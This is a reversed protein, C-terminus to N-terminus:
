RINNSFPNNKNEGYFIKGQDLNDKYMCGSPFRKINNFYLTKNYICEKADSCKIFSGCCGFTFEASDKYCKKYVDNVHSLVDDIIEEDLIIKLWGAGNDTKNTDLRLGFLTYYKKAIEIRRESKLSPLKIVAIDCFYLTKFGKNIKIEFDGKIFDPHIEVISRIQSIFIEM